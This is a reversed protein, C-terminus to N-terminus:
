KKSYKKTKNTFREFVSDPNFLYRYTIHTKNKIGGIHKYIREMEPNYDGVWSLEIEKHQPKKELAKIYQLFLAGLIGTKQFEPVVGAILVRSRTIIKMSRRLVFRLKNVVNLKGKFPKIIQNVDPFVVVFAIPENNHYAFWILEEDLIDKADEVITRIDEHKLSTYSDHYSSWIVNYAEVLDDIYKDLRDFKLHEFSFEPKSGIYEAFKVMRPNFPKSLDVHYSYQEFYNRFGYGEFLNKYYPMNYPMGYGQHMFGDVLLGWNVFNEGFNIPGDMAEINKSQLWEKATDFLLNAADQEQVCEFFGIGGTPQNNNNLIKKEDYFAAIRGIPKSFNDLVVWRSAEGSNFCRNKGPDFTNEIEVDLPCVWNKDNRYITRAADLFAKKTKDSDVVVIKM